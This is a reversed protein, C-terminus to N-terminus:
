FVTHCSSILTGVVVPLNLIEKEKNITCDQSWCVGGLGIVDEWCCVCWDSLSKILHLEVQWFQLCFTCSCTAGYSVSGRHSHGGRPVRYASQALCLAAAWAPNGAKPPSSDWDETHSRIDLCAPPGPQWPGHSVWNNWVPSFAESESVPPRFSDLAAPEAARHFHRCSLCTIATINPAWYNQLLTVESIIQLDSPLWSHRTQSWERTQHLVIIFFTMEDNIKGTVM